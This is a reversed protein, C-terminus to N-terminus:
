LLRTLAGVAVTATKSAALSQRAQRRDQIKLELRRRRSRRGPSSSPRSQSTQCDVAAKTPPWLDVAVVTTSASSVIRSIWSARGIEEVEFYIRVLYVTGVVAPAIPLRRIFLGRKENQSNVERKHCRRTPIRVPPLFGRTAVASICRRLVSVLFDLMCGSLPTAQEEHDGTGASSSVARRLDRCHEFLIRRGDLSRPYLQRACVDARVRGHPIAKRLASNPNRGCWPSFMNEGFVRGEGYAVSCCWKRVGRGKGGGIALALGRGQRTHFCLSFRQNANGNIGLHSQKVSATPASLLPPFPQQPPLFTPTPHAVSIVYNIEPSARVRQQFFINQVFYLVSRHAFVIRAAAKSFSNSPFCIQYSPSPSGTM